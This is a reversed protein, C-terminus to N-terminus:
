APAIEDRPAANLAADPEADPAIPSALLQGVIVLFRAVTTTTPASPGPGHQVHAQTDAARECLLTPGPTGPTLPALGLPVELLFYRFPAPGAPTRVLLAAWSEGSEVPPPLNILVAEHTGALCQEAYLDTAPVPLADTNAYLHAQAWLAILWATSDPGRLTNWTVEPALLAEEPLLYQTFELPQPRPM